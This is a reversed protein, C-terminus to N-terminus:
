SDVLAGQSGDQACFMLHIIGVLIFSTNVNVTFCAARYVEKQFFM